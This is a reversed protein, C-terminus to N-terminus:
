KILTMLYHYAYTLSAFLTFLSEGILEKTLTGFQCSALKRILNVFEGVTEEAKQSRMNLVYREYVVNRKPKFHTELAEVCTKVDKRKEDALKLNMFIQM